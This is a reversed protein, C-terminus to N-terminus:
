NEPTVRVDGTFLWWGYQSVSFGQVRESVAVLIDAFYFPIAPLKEQLIEEMRVYIEKRKDPDTERRGQALLDEYEDDCFNFRGKNACSIFTFRQDPDARLPSGTTALSFDGKQLADIYAAFEMQETEASIGVRRLQEQIVLALERQYPISSIITVVDAPDYNAQEILAKARGPDYPYRHPATMSKDFWFTGPATWVSTERGYGFDVAEMLENRDIAHSIAQRMLPDKTVLAGTNIWMARALTGDGQLVQGGDIADVREVDGPPLETLVDIEGTQMGAIAAQDDGVVRWVLKDLHATLDGGLGTQPSDVPTYDEFREMVYRNGAVAEVLKFPGTGIPNTAQDDGSGEPLMALTYPQALNAMFVSSPEHLTVTLEYEGTAEVTDVTDMEASRSSEKIFRNLSYEADAATLDSGDHFTVNQRLSFTYVTGDESVEWEEALMPIIELEDNLTVLGEFVHRLVNSETFGSTLYPDLSQLDNALRVTLTGGDSAGPNEGDAANGCATAILMVSLTTALYKLIGVHRIKM